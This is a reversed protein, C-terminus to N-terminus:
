KKKYVSILFAIKLLQDHVLRKFFDKYFIVTLTVIQISLACLKKECFMGAITLSKLFYLLRMLSLFWCM